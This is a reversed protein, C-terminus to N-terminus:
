KSFITKSVAIGTTRKTTNGSADTFTVTLSYIRARGNPLRKAKLRVLHNNVVEWYQNGSSADNSSVSLVCSVEQSNDSSTYNV